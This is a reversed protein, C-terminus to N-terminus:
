QSARASHIALVADAGIIIAPPLFWWPKGHKKLESSLVSFGVAVPIGLSYMAGRSQFPIPIATCSGANLCNHTTEVAVVVSAFMLGQVAWYRVGPSIETSRTQIKKGGAPAAPSEGQVGSSSGHALTPLLEQTGKRDFASSFNPSPPGKGISGFQQGSGFSLSSSLRAGSWLWDPGKGLDDAPLLSVREELTKVDGAVVGFPAEGRTSQARAATCTALLTMFIWVRGNQSKM